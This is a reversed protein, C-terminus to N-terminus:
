YHCQLIIFVRLFFRSTAEFSVYRIQRIKVRSSSLKLFKCKFSSTKVLTYLTQALFYLPTINWSLLTHYLIQLFLSKHNLFNGSSNPLNEGSCMFNEFNPSENSGKICLLFHIVKFSVTSNHTIVTLFSAFNSISNVQWNLISM